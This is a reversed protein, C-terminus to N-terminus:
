KIQNNPMIWHTRLRQIVDNSHKNVPHTVNEQYGYRYEIYTNNQQKSHSFVTQQTRSWIDEVNSLLKASTRLRTVNVPWKVEGKSSWTTSKTDMNDHITKVLGDGETLTCVYLELRRLIYVPVHFRCCSWTKWFYLHLSLAQVVIM